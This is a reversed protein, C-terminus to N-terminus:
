RPDNAEVAAELEDTSRKMEATLAAIRPDTAPIEAVIAQAILALWKSISRTQRDIALEIEHLEHAATRRNRKEM